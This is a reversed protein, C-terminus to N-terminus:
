RKWLEEIREVIDELCHDNSLARANDHLSDLKNKDVLTKEIMDKLRRADLDKEKIVIAADHDALAMANYYQHDNPVYPSPILISPTGLATIEALTTAGARSILLDSVKMMKAGDVRKVIKIMKSDYDKAAEYHKDGTAYVIQYDENGDLMDFYELFVKQVSESGLSGLFMLVTKKDLDLGLDRLISRDEKVSLAVSSQPNGLVVINPNKFQKLSEEYSVIILDVKKDLMRNARGVFSNQEHIMTKIKLKKAALVVPVSIYNGFGIVLDQGNLLRLCRRYASYISILSKVKQLPGGRTTKIDLGIFKFGADPVVDKEMRDLSGIFTLEHGREKLARALSLAPYIHGGSGGTAIVIKM